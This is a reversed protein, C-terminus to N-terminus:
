EEGFTWQRDNGEAVTVPTDHIETQESVWRISQYSNDYQKASNKDNSEAKRCESARPGHEEDSLAIFVSYCKEM